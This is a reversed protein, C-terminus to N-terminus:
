EYQIKVLRQSDGGSFYCVAAVFLHLGGLDEVEKPTSCASSHVCGVFIDACADNVEDLNSFFVFEEAVLAERAAEARPDLVYKLFLKRCVDIIYRNNKGVTMCLPHTRDDNIVLSRGM